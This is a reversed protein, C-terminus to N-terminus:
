RAPALGKSARIAEAFWQDHPKSADDPRPHYKGAIDAITKRPSDHDLHLSERLILECVARRETPPLKRFQELFQATEPSM